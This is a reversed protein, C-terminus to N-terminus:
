ENMINSARNTRMCVLRVSDEKKVSRDWINGNGLYCPQVWRIWLADRKKQINWLTKSMLAMNWSKLDKFGLGGENKAHCVEKWAVLPHHSNWLFGRCLRYIKDIVGAPIPLVSLWFCEVGQLVSKTLEARGAYSMPACKWAKIYDAIKETFPAFHIIKLKEAALPIGLYRFPMCGPPFRTVRQIEALEDCSIGASFMFSKLENINLGSTATFKDLCDIIIKVSTVDGRALLMLDDAFALHTIKLSACKPHYNFESNETVFKLSGGNVLLSFSPSSICEMIWGIFNSPFRLGKVFASQAQNVLCPLVHALRAVLIKSIVKYTVNYCSIPRFDQVESAHSSKPILAISAHNIQKLLSSSGFFEEIAECFCIFSEKIEERTVNKILDHAQQASVMPGSSLVEPDIPENRSSTGLLSQFYRIFEEEVQCQSTTVEGDQKWVSAIFIKNANRRALAHFLKTCKDSNMLYSCKVIQSYFQREAESLFMAEKRLKSVQSQLVADKPLDHLELQAMKLEHVAQKARESINSFHQRNLSKFHAKLIKLKRCLVFQKSRPISQNWVMDVLDNVGVFGAWLNLFWFPKRKELVSNFVSVIIPSHDSLCGSPLFNAVSQFGSLMWDSNVMTRDLKSWVVNNTWTFFCGFSQSQSRQLFLRTRAGKAMRGAKLNPDLIKGQAERAQFRRWLAKKKKRSVIQFQDEERSDQAEIDKEKTLSSKHSAIEDQLSDKQGVEQTKQHSPGMSEEVQQSGAQTSAGIDKGEKLSERDIKSPQAPETPGIEQDSKEVVPPTQPDHAKDVVGVAQAGKDNAPCVDKKFRCGTISHGFVKCASCYKPEFEYLVQQERVKGSPFKMRVDRVLLRSADIEVMVRAYSVREKTATLEKDDFEFDQPMTKLMLPWGFVLYPGGAIFEDRDRDNEFKFILWGSSHVLYKYKVDWSDCLKLLAVKGPFRGAFYGVLCAGWASEVADLEQQELELEEPQNELTRLTIGKSQNRNAKFLGAWPAQSDDGKKVENETDKASESPCDQTTDKEGLTRSVSLSDADVEDTNSAQLSAKSASVSLPSESIGENVNTGTSPKAKLAPDKIASTSVGYTKRIM